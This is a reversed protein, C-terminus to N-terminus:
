GGQHLAEHALQAQGRREDFSRRFVSGQVDGVAFCECEDEQFLEDGCM